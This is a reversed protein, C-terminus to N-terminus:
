PEIFGTGPTKWLVDEGKGGGGGVLLNLVSPLPPFAKSHSYHPATPCCTALVTAM